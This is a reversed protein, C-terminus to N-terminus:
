ATVEGEPAPKVSPYFVAEEFSSRITKGDAFPLDMFESLTNVLPSADIYHGKDNLKTTDQVRWYNANVDTLYYLAGDIDMYVSHNAHLYPRLEDFTIDLAEDAKVGM